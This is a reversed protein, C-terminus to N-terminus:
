QKVEALIDENANLIFKEPKFPLLPFEFNEVPGRSTLWGFRVTRGGQVVYLPLADKWTDPVGSRLLTGTVKWKNDPAAEINYRFNYEAIGTGYVFQNFFWDM